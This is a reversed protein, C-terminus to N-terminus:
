YAYTNKPKNLNNASKFLAQKNFISAVRDESPMLINSGMSSYEAYDVFRAIPPPALNQTPPAVPPPALSLNQPPPGINQPAVNSGVNSGANSGVISVVNSGAVLPVNSGTSPCSQGSVPPAKGSAWKYSTTWYSACQPTSAKNSSACCVKGVATTASSGTCMSTKTITDVTMRQKCSAPTNPSAFTAANAIIGCCPDYVKTCAQLGFDYVPLNSTCPFATQMTGNNMYLITCKKSTLSTCAKFDKMGPNGRTLINGTNVPAPPYNASSVEQCLALNTNAVEYNKCFQSLNSGPPVLENRATRCDNTDFNFLAGRSPCPNTTAVGDWKLTCTEEKNYDTCTKINKNINALSGSTQRPLSTIPGAGTIIKRVTLNGGAEVVYLAGDPGLALGRISSFQSSPGFADKYGDTSGVLLTPTGGSLPTTVIRTTDGIIIIKNVQDVVLACSSGGTLGSVITTVNGDGGTGIGLRRVRKLDQDIVYLNGSADFSMQGRPQSYSAGTLLPGDVNTNTGTGSVKILTPTGTPACKNITNNEQNSFYIFGDIPSVAISAPRNSSILTTVVGDITIKRICNGNFDAVYINGSSDVAINNPANFSASLGTGNIVNGQGSGAFDGVNNSSDIKIIKNLDRDTIYINGAADCAIGTPNRFQLTSFTKGAITSTKLIGANIPDAFNEITNSRNLFLLFVAVILLLIPILLKM